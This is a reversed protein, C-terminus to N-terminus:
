TWFDMQTPTMEYDQVRWDMLVKFAYPGIHFDRGANIVEPKFFTYPSGDPYFVPSGTYGPYVMGRAYSIEEPQTWQSSQSLDVVGVPGVSLDHAQQAGALAPILAAALLFGLAFAKKLKMVLTLIKDPPM